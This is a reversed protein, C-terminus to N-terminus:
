TANGDGYREMRLRALRSRRIRWGETLRVYDEHYHGWGRILLTGAGPPDAAYIRDEMAWIGTAEVPSLIEILPSHGHHITARGGLMEASWRVITEVSVFPDPRIEPVLLEADPAWVDAWSTWDQRDLHLFYRAKLQRIEEIAVLRALEDM